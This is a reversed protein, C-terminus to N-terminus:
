DFSKVEIPKKSFVVDGEKNEAAIQLSPVFYQLEDFSFVAEHFTSGAEYGQIIFDTKQRYEQRFLGTMMEVPRHSYFLCPKNEYSYGLITNSGEIEPIREFAHIILEGHNFDYAYHRTLHLSPEETRNGKGVSTRGETCSYKRPITIYGSHSTEELM